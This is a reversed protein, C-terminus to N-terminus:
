IERQETELNYGAQQLGMSQLRGPGETWPTKGLLFVPTPQWKRRWPFRGLGPLSGVLGANAPLNKVVLGDLFDM